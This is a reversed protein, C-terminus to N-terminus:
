KGAGKRNDAWGALYAANRSSKVPRQHPKDVISILREFEDNLAAASAVRERERTQAAHEIADLNGVLLNHAHLRENFWEIEASAPALVYGPM